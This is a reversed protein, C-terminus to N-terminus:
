YYPDFSLSSGLVASSYSSIKISLLINPAGPLKTPKFLACFGGSGAEDERDFVPSLFTMNSGLAAAFIVESM